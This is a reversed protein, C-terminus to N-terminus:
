TASMSEHIRDAIDTQTHHVGRMRRHSYVSHILSLFKKDIRLNKSPKVEEHVTGYVVVLFNRQETGRQSEDISTTLNNRLHHVGHM